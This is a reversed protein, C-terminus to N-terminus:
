AHLCEHMYSHGCTHTDTNVYTHIYTHIYTHKYIHLCSLRPTRARAREHTSAHAFVKAYAKELFIMWFETPDKMRVFSPTRGELCPILADIVIDMWRGRKFFRICVLGKAFFKGSCSFLKKILDQGKASALIAASSLLFCDGLSGQIIDNAEAGDGEENEDDVFLQPNKVLEEPRKWIIQRGNFAPMPEDPDVYLSHDNPPFDPDAFHGDLGDVLSRVDIFGAEGMTACTITCFSPGDPNAHRPVAGRGFSKHTLRKDSLANKGVMVCPIRAQENGGSVPMPDLADESNVFIVGAAGAEEAHEAKTIWDVNGRLIFLIKGRVANVIPGSADPPDAWVPEGAACYRQGPALGRPSFGAWVADVGVPDGGLPPTLHVTALFRPPGDGMTWPDRLGESFAPDGNWTRLLLGKNKMSFMACRTDQPPLHSTAEGESPLSVNFALPIWATSKGCCRM